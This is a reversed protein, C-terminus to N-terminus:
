EFYSPANEAISEDLQNIFEDPTIMGSALEKVLQGMLAGSVPDLADDWNSWSIEQQKMVEFYDRMMQPQDAPPDVEFPPHVGHAYSAESYHEVLYKFFRAMEADFTEQNFGWSIGTQIAMNAKQESAPYESNTPIVFFGLRGEDYAQSMQGILLSQGWLISYQEGLFGNVIDTWEINGFGPPFYGNQALAYLFETSDKVTPVDAFKIEGRKAQNLWDNGTVTWSPLYMIHAPNWSVKASVGLPIEGNAKLAACVELFEDFTEPPREIGAAEFKDKWYFFTNGYRAEPLIYLGGDEHEVYARAGPNLSNLMGIKELEAEIDVLKGQKALEMSIPGKDIQFVEPLDNGSIYMKLKDKYQDLNPVTEFEVTFNPNVEKQYQAIISTWIQYAPHAETRNTYIRIRKIPQDADESTTVADEEPPKAQTPDSIVSPTPACAGLLYSTLFLLLIVLAIKRTNM